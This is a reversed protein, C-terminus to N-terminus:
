EPCAYGLLFDDVTRAALKKIQSGAPTERVGLVRMHMLDYLLMGVFYRALRRPEVPKLKGQQQFIKFFESVAETGKSYTLDFYLKGHDPRNNVESIVLRRFRVYAEATVSELLSVSWNFLGERLDTSEGTTISEMTELYSQMQLATISAFIDDKGKFYRYITERSCGAREMINTISVNQYGNELFLETAAELIAIDKPIKKKM